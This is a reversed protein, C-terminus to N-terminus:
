LPGDIKQSQFIRVSTKFITGDKLQLYILKTFDCSMLMFM